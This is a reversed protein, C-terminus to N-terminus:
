NLRANLKKAAENALTRFRPLCSHYMIYIPVCLTKRLSAGGILVEKAPAIGRRGHAEAQNCRAQHVDCFVIVKSRYRFQKTPARARGVRPHTLSKFDRVHFNKDLSKQSVRAQSAGAKGVHTSADRRCSIWLLGTRQISRSLTWPGPNSHGGSRTNARERLNAPARGWPPVRRAAPAARYLRWRGM